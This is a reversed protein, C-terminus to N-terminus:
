PGEPVPLDGEVRVAIPPHVGFEGGIPPLHDPEPVELDLAIGRATDLADARRDLHGALNM